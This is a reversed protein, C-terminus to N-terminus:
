DITIVYLEINLLVFDENTLISLVENMWKWRSDKLRTKGVKLMTKELRRLNAPANTVIIATAVWQM